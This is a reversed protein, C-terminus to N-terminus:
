VQHHSSSSREASDAAKLSMRNAHRVSTIHSPTANLASTREAHMADSETILWTDPLKRLYFRDKIM